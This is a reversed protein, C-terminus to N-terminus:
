STARKQENKRSSQRDMRENKRPPQSKMRENKRTQAKRPVTLYSIERPTREFTRGRKLAFKELRIAVIYSLIGIADILRSYEIHKVV